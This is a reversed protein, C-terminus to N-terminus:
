GMAPLRSVAITAIRPWDAKWEQVRALLAQVQERLATNEARLANEEEPTM